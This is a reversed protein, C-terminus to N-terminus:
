WTTWFSILVVKGRYQSLSVMEGDISPLEFDPAEAPEKYHYIDLASLQESLPPIEGKVEVPPSEVSPERAEEKKECAVTAIIVIFLLVFIFYFKNMTAKM